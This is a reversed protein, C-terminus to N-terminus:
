PKEKHLESIIRSLDRLSFVPRDAIWASPTVEGAKVRKTLIWRNTQVLPAFRSLSVYEAPTSTSRM